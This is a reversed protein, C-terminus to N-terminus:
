KPIIIDDVDKVDIFNFSETYEIYDVVNDTLYIFPRTYEYWGKTTTPNSNCPLFLFSISGDSGYSANWECVVKTWDTDSADSNNSQIGGIRVCPQVRITEDTQRVVNGRMYCGFIVRRKKTTDIGLKDLFLKYSIACLQTDSEIRMINHGNEDRYSTSTIPYQGPNITQLIGNNFKPITAGDGYASAGVKFEVDSFLNNYNNGNYTAFFNHSCPRCIVENHNGNDTYIASEKHKAISPSADVKNSIANPGFVVMKNKTVDFINEFYLSNFTNGYANGDFYIGIQPDVIDNSFSADCGLFLNLNGNINFHRKSNGTAAVAIFTNNNPCKTEHSMDVMYNSTAGYASLHFLTINKFVSYYLNEGSRIGFDTFNLYRANEHVLTGSFINGGVSLTNDSSKNEFTINMCDTSNFKFLYPVPETAKIQITTCLKGEGIIQKNSNIEGKTMVYIGKPFYLTRYDSNLAEVLIDDIPLNGTPDCGFSVMNLASGIILKLRDELEDLQESSVSSSDFEGLDDIRNELDKIKYGVSVGESDFVADEHTVPYFVEGDRNMQKIKAM